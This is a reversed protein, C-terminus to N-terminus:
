RGRTRIGYFTDIDPKGTEGKLNDGQEDEIEESSIVGDPGTIGPLLRGNGSAELHKDDKESQRRHGDVDPTTITDVFKM